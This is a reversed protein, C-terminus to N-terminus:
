GALRMGKRKNSARSVLVLTGAAGAATAAVAVGGIYAARKGSLLSRIAGREGAEELNALIGSLVGPAPELYETRLQRLARLLKRYHVLEAQCRLCTTVHHQIRRDARETGDAIAPLAAAVEECTLRRTPRRQHDRQDSQM